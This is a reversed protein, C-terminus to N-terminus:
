SIPFNSISSASSPSLYAADPCPFGLRTRSSVSLNGQPSPPSPVRMELVRGSGLVVADGPATRM